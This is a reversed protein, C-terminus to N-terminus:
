ARSLVNESVFLNRSRFGPPSEHILVARLEQMDSGFWPIRLKRDEAWIWQPHPLKFTRALEEGVAALYADRIEGNETGKLRSPEESLAEASPGAYFEDLFNRLTLSFNEGELTWRAVEALSKPRM